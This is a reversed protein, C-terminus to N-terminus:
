VRPSMKYTSIPIGAKSFKELSNRCNSEFWVQDVWLHRKIFDEGMAAMLMYEFRTTQGQRSGAAVDSLKNDNYKSIATEIQDINEFGLRKLLKVYWDYSWDSIRGDPGLKRDLFLKLSKPTIEIDSFVGESISAEAADELEKDTDEIAQFERDAIELMGALAMFRRRIQNPIATSSKYQIDHEIEAWAHQLITRVQVEALAGSFRQYEALRARDAKVRVLYHMSQYGFKEDEILKRGKDSFEAIDFEERLVKDIEDITGPFHAIIRIGALDTIEKLPNEYKPLSPDTDSPICAKKGLSNPDKQRNQISHIKIQKRKLCEDLIRAVSLAFDKYYSEVRLYDSVTKNKHAEFDFAPSPPESSM